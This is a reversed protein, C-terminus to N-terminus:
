VLSGLFLVGGVLALLVGFIQVFVFYDDSMEVERSRRTTGATRQRSDIAAIWEPKVLAIIGVALVIAPVLDAM